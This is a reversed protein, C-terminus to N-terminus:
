LSVEHKWVPNHASNPGFLTQPVPSTKAPSPTSTPPSNDTGGLRRKAAIAGLASLANSSSNRSVNATSTGSAPDKVSEGTPERSVFENQEFQVVVYPRAHISRVSLGRASILKVHIQGKAAPPTPTRTSSSTSSRTSSSASDTTTDPPNKLPPPRMNFEHAHLSLQTTPHASAFNFGGPTLPSTPTHDASGRSCTPSASSSYLAPTFLLHHHYSPPTQHGTGTSTTGGTTNVTATSSFFSDQADRSSDAKPTLPETPTTPWFKIM